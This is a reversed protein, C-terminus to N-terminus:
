LKKDTHRCCSPSEFGIKAM